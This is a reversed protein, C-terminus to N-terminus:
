LLSIEYLQVSRAAFTRYIFYFVRHRFMIVELAEAFVHKERHGKEDGQGSGDWLRGPNCPGEKGKICVDRSRHMGGALFATMTLHVCIPVGDGGLVLMWVLLSVLYKTKNKTGCIKTLRKLKNLVWYFPLIGSWCSLRYIVLNDNGDAFTLNRNRNKKMRIISLCSAIPSIVLSIILIM